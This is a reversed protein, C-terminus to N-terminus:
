DNLPNLSIFQALHDEANEKINSRDFFRLYGALYGCTETLDSYNSLFFQPSLHFCDTSTHLWNIIPTTHICFPPVNKLNSAYNSITSFNSVLSVLAQKNCSQLANPTLHLAHVILYYLTRLSYCSSLINKYSFAPLVQPTLVVTRVLLYKNNSSFKTHQTSKILTLILAAGLSLLQPAYCTQAPGM